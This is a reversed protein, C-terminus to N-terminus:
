SLETASGKIFVRKFWTSITQVIIKADERWNRTATYYVDTIFVEDLTSNQDTNIYWLGTFGTPSEFRKRQWEETIQGAEEESLPKVGVISLDGKVVNVLEPIRHLDTAELLRGVLTLREDPKRTNFRILNFTAPSESSNKKCTIPQFVPRSALFVFVTIILALPASLCLLGLSFALDVLRRLHENLQTQRLPGLLFNDTVQISEGSATNVVLDKYVVRQDINVWKGVYTNDIITSEKISAGDDIVVNSGIVVEPGIEVDRGIRCHDGIMVPPAILANPHIVNNRGVWIGPAIENSLIFPDELSDDTGQDTKPSDEKQGSQLQVQQASQYESFSDLPNWYGNSPYGCIPIGAASLSLLFQQFGYPTRAPIYELTSADLIYVGTNYYTHKPNSREGLALTMKELDLVLSSAAGIRTPSVVVTAKSELAHHQKLAALLDVDVIADGPMVILTDIAIGQAWKLAGATGWPKQQLIYEFRVGWRQGNGFYAEIQNAMNYVSVHIHKFGQRALLEVPYSMVPRNVLPVMPTPLTDTLPNLKNTESTALLLVQCNSGM